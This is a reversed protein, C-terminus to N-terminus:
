DERKQAVIERIRKNRAKLAEEREQEYVQRIQDRYLFARDNNIMRPDANILYGDIGGLKRIQACAERTCKFLLTTNLATSRWAVPVM